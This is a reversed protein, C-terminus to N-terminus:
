NARSQVPKLNALVNHEVKLFGAPNENHADQVLPHNRDLLVEM